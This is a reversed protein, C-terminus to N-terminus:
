HQMSPLRTNMNVPTHAGRSDGIPTWPIIMMMCWWLLVTIYSHILVGLWWNPGHFSWWWADDFFCLSTAIYSCGRNPLGHFSKMLMMMCFPVTNMDQLLNEKHILVGPHCNPVMCHCWWWAFRCLTLTKNCAKTSLQTACNSALLKTQNITYQNANM